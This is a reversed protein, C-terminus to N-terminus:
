RALRILSHGGMTIFFTSVVMGLFISTFILASNWRMGYGVAVCIYAGLFPSLPVLIWVGYKGYKQSWKEAKQLRKGLWKWRNTIEKFTLMLLPIPILNALISVVAGLLPHFGLPLSAVAAPQAELLISTGILTLTATLHRQTLGLVLSLLFFVMAGITGYV